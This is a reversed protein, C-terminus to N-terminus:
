AVTQATRKAEATDYSEGYIAPVKGGMPRLYTSLQGRHHIGHVLGIQLFFWAPRQMRGMFDITTILQEGSLGSIADLSKAHESAHWDAVEQPTKVGEPIKVSGPVFAGDIVSRLFFIDASAIHRLLENASKACLDPRYDLNANPVAALVAGTTRSENRLMGLFVNQVFQHAQEATMESVPTRRQIKIRLRLLKEAGTAPQIFAAIARRLFNAALDWYRALEPLMAGSLNGSQLLPAVFLGPSLTPPGRLLFFKFNGAAPLM